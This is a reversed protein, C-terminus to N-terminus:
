PIVSKYLDLLINRRDVCQPFLPLQLKVLLQIEPSSHPYAHRGLHAEPPENGPHCWIWQRCHWLQRRPKFGDGACSGIRYKGNVNCYLDAPLRCANIGHRRWILVQLLNMLTEMTATKDPGIEYSRIIFTQRYVYHDEVFRGLLSSHLPTDPPSENLLGSNVDKIVSAGNVRKRHVLDLVPDGGTSNATVSLRARSPLDLAKQSFVLANSVRPRLVYGVSSLWSDGGGRGGEGGRFSKNSISAAM